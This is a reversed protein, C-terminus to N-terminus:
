KNHSTQTNINWLTRCFIGGLIKKATKEAIVQFKLQELTPNPADNNSVRNMITDGGITRHVNNDSM